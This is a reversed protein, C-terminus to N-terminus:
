GDIEDIELGSGFLHETRALYKELFGEFTPAILNRSDAFDWFCVAGGDTPDPTLRIAYAHSNILFDAFPFWRDTWDPWEKGGSRFERVSVM